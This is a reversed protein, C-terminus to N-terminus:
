LGNTKSGMENKNASVTNNNSASLCVTDACCITMAIKTRSLHTAMKLELYKTPHTLLLSLSIDTETVIFKKSNM